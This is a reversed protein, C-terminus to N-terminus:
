LKMLVDEDGIILTGFNLQLIVKWFMEKVAKRFQSGNKIYKPLTLIEEVLKKKQKKYLTHYCM